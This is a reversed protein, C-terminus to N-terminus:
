IPNQLVQSIILAYIGYSIISAFVTLFQRMATNKGNFGYKQILEFVYYGIVAFGLGYLFNIEQFYCVMVIIINIFRAINGHKAMAWLDANVTVQKNDEM